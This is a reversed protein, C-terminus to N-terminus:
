KKDGPKSAGVPEPLLRIYDGDVESTARIASIVIEELMDPSM